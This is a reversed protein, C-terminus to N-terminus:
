FSVQLSNIIHQLQPRLNHLALAKFYPFITRISILPFTPPFESIILGSIVYKCSLSVTVNISLYTNEPPLNARISKIFIPEFVTPVPIPVEIFQKPLM